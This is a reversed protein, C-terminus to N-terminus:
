INNKRICKLLHENFDKCGCPLTYNKFFPYKERIIASAQQGVDDNDLFLIHQKYKEFDVEDIQHILSNVGNSPTVIHYYEDQKKSHLFQYFAYCDLYGELIILVETKSSYENVMALGTGCNAERELTSKSFNAPRYEYGMLLNAISDNEKTSYQVTPFAWMYGYNSDYNLDHIKIGIGMDYATNPTIGRLVEFNKLAGRNQEFEKQLNERYEHFMLLLEYRKVKSIKQMHKLNDCSNNTLDSQQYLKLYLEKRLKNSHEFNRFCTLFGKSINFKLNDCHNDAGENACLPCQWIYDDYNKKYNTGFTEILIELIKQNLDKNIKM